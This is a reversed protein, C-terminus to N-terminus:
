HLLLPIERVKTQLMLMCRNPDSHVNASLLEINNNEMLKCIYAYLGPKTPTCIVTFHAESGYVSLVVSPSHFVQLVVAPQQAPRAVPPAAKSSGQSVLSAEEPGVPVSPRLPTAPSNESALDTPVSFNQFTTTSSSDDDDPANNILEQKMQEFDKVTQELSLIYDVTTEVVKIQDAKSFM